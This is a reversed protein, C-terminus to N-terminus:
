RRVTRWQRPRETLRQRSPRRAPMFPTRPQALGCALQDGPSFFEVGGGDQDVIALRPVREVIVAAVHGHRRDAGPWGAGGGAAVRFFGATDQRAVVRMSIALVLSAMRGMIRASKAVM